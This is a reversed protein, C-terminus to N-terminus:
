GLREMNICDVYKGNGLLSKCEDKQILQFVMSLQIRPKNAVAGGSVLRSRCLASFSRPLLRDISRLPRLALFCALEGSKALNGGSSRIM